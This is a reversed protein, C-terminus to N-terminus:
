KPWVGNIARITYEVKMENEPVFKNLFGSFPEAAVPGDYGIEVLNKMFTDIDLVGTEGPMARDTDPLYDIPIGIKADNIHVLLIQKPDLTKVIDMDHGAVYTHYIDLLLGSRGGDIANCLELMEPLNSVFGYKMRYRDKRVGVFELGMRLDFENLVDSYGALREALFDFQTKYTMTNSFPLIYTTAGYADLEKAVEAQKKLEELGKKYEAIDPNEFAHSFGFGANKMNNDKLAQKVKDVGVELAAKPDIDIGEFGHRAAMEIGELLGVRVGICGLAASKYM